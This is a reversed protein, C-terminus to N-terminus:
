LYLKYKYFYLRYKCLYLRYISFIYPRFLSKTPMFYKKFPTQVTNSYQKFPYARMTFRSKASVGGRKHVLFYIVCFTKREFCLALNASFLNM